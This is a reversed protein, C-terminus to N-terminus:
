MLKLTNKFNQNTNTKKAYKKTKLVKSPTMILMVKIKIITLHGNCLIPRRYMQLHGDADDADADDTVLQYFLERTLTELAM